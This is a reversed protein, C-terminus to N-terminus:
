WYALINKDGKFWKDTLRYTKSRLNENEITDISAILMSETNSFLSEIDGFFDAVCQIYPNSNFVQNHMVPYVAHLLRRSWVLSRTMNCLLMDHLLKSDFTETPQKDNIKNKSRRECEIFYKRVQRGIESKEVMALEKAMDLTLIYDKQNQGGRGSKESFKTFNGDEQKIVLIDDEKQKGFNPLLFYDVNETFGYEDIRGKIWTAFVRGVNLFKHLERANCLLQEVGRVEGTFVPVLQNNKSPKNSKNSDMNSIRKETLNNFYNLAQRGEESKDLIALEKAKEITLLYELAPRGGRGSKIQGNQCILIDEQKLVLITSDKQKESDSFLFYDVNETLRCDNIRGKIWNSFDRGVKLFKHLNRANCLLRREGHVTGEFVPILENSM